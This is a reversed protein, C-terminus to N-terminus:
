ELWQSSSRDSHCPKNRPHTDNIKDASDRYCPTPGWANPARQLCLYSGNPTDEWQMTDRNM